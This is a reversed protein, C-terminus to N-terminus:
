EGETNSTAKELEAADSECITEWLQHSVHKSAEVLPVVTNLDIIDQYYMSGLNMRSLTLWGKPLTSNEPGACVNQDDSSQFMRKPTVSSSGSQSINGSYMPTFSYGRLNSNTARRIFILGYYPTAMNGIALQTPVLVSKTRSTDSTERKTIRINANLRELFPQDIIDDISEDRISVEQRLTKDVDKVLTDPILELLKKYQKQYYKTKKNFASLEQEKEEKIRNVIRSTWEFVHIEGEEPLTHLGLAIMFANLPHLPNFMYQERQVQVIVGYVNDASSLEQMLTPLYVSKDYKITTITSHTYNSKFQDFHVREMDVNKGYAFSPMDNPVGTTNFIDFDFDKDFPLYINGQPDIFSVEETETSQYVSAEAMEKLSNQLALSLVSIGKM